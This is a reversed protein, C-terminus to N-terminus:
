SLILARYALNFTSISQNTCRHPLHWANSSLSSLLLPPMLSPLTLSTSAKLTPAITSKRCACRPLSRSRCGNTLILFLCFSSCRCSLCLSRPQYSNHISPVPSSLATHPYFCLIALEAPRNTMANALVRVLKGLHPYCQTM